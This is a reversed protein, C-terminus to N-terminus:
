TAADVDAHGELYLQDSRSTRGVNRVSATPSTTQTVESTFRYAGEARVRAWAAELLQGSDFSPQGAPSLFGIVFLSVLLAAIGAFFRHTRSHLM